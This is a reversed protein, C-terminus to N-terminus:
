DWAMPARPFALLCSPGEATVLVMEGIAAGGLGPIFLNPHLELLMGPALALEPARHAPTTRDFHQPFAETLLPDEYSCGLGHGNRFRALGPHAAMLGARQMQGDMAAEVGALPLGPALAALGAQLMAEVQQALAVHQTKLPGIAGMRIGHGWHGDVTLAIGFLVQDGAQPVRQAEERWYRCYDAEPAVTLWTRCYDAGALRAATELNLQAQWAPIRRALETGLRAFLMDCLAAAQRHLALEATDKVLRMRALEGDLAVHGPAALPSHIGAPMESFGVTGCASAGTLAGLAAAWAAPRVDHLALDAHLARALPMLFASGVFLHDGTPTLALLSPSEHGDWGCLYRLAGHSQSGAGLASGHGFVLVTGLGRAGAQRLLARRRAAFVEPGEAPARPPLPSATGPMTRPM